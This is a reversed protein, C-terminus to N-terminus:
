FLWLRRKRVAWLKIRKGVVLCRLMYETKSDNFRVESIIPPVTSSVRQNLVYCQKQVHWRIWFNRSKGESRKPWVYRLANGAFGLAAGNPASLWEHVSMDDAASGVFRSKDPRLRIEDPLAENAAQLIAWLEAARRTEAGPDPTLPAQESAAVKSKAARKKLEKDIWSM